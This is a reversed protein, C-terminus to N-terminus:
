QDITQLLSCTFQKARLLAVPDLNEYIDDLQHWKPLAHTLPDYGAICIARYGLHTLTSVEESMVMKKGRVGWERHNHSVKKAINMLEPDPLYHMGIGHRTVFVLNGAGVGELDIFLAPRLDQTHAKLISRLGFHDTEEAGTFALWVRTHILAQQSLDHAIDLVVGVSSANDNAGPSYPTRDDLILTIMMILLYVSPVLSLTWIGWRQGIIVGVLYLIGLTSQIVLTVYTLPELGSLREPKWTLRCQNTDLHSLLVVQREVEGMPEIKGLVGPSNVKPLFIRLPNTSTRITLGMFPAVLLALIAAVWRTPSGDLPYLIVALLGMANIILPYHNMSRITTCSFQELPIGWKMLCDSVYNAAKKEGVMGTGRPGISSALFQIHGEISKNGINNEQM